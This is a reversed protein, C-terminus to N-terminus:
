KLFTMLKQGGTTKLTTYPPQKQFFTLKGEYLAQFYLHPNNPLLLEQM